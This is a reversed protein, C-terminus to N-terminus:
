TCWLLDKWVSSFWSRNAKKSVMLTALLKLHGKKLLRILLTIRAERLQNLPATGKSSKLVEEDTPDGAQPVSYLGVCYRFLKMVGSHVKTSNALTLQPWSGCQFLGRTLLYLSVVGNKRDVSLSDRSLIPKLARLSEWMLAFRRTIELSMGGRVTATTGLHKDANGCHLVTVSGDPLPTSLMNGLEYQLQCEADHTGIGHFFMLASTKTAKMNVEMGHLRFTKLAFTMFTRLNVTLQMAMSFLPITLDDVFTVSSTNRKSNSLQCQLDQVLADPLGLGRVEDSCIDRTLGLRQLEDNLKHIIRAYALIFLVDAKSSGAIVGCFYEFIARVGEVSAWSCQHSANILKLM